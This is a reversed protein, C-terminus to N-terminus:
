QVPEKAEIPKIKFEYNDTPGFSNNYDIKNNPTKYPDDDDYKWNM